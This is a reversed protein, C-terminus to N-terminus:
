KHVTKDDLLTRIRKLLDHNSYPKYLMNELLTKDMVESHIGDTYGSVMQIKINPYRKAVQNALHFGDMKPMIVDCLVLVIDNCEALMELAQEGGEALLVQYGSELLIEGVMSRLAPEDDVVLLKENGFYQKNAQTDANTSSAENTQYRPFYLHFQTGKGLQSVVNIVGGNRQVFGFVQSLGLGTGKEGKTSFFPDFIKSKTENDMGIGTDSVSLCMYDGSGLGYIASDIHTFTEPQTKLVLTGGDPMAHQANIAMNLLVDQLESIDLWVSWPSACLDLKLEIRATLSKALMEEDNKVIENLNAIEANSTKKRSFSLLKETMNKSRIGAEHIRNLYRGIDQVDVFKAQLLETYGLIVGLMNNYDHAIGGSLKGLADMKQSRHLQEAQQKQETLDNFSGIFRRKGTAECPLEAVGLRMPFTKKNKCLGEVERGIGIIHAEGTELYKQLYGDHRNAHPNPMLLSINKGVVEDATYGFLKEAVQNFTLIIGQEDITIVGDIM